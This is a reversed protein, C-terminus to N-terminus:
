IRYILNPQGIGRKMLVYRNRSALATIHDKIKKLSKKSPQVHPNSRRSAHREPEM